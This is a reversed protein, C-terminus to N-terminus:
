VGTFTKACGRIIARPQRCRYNKKAGKARLLKAGEVITHGTDIMDDIIIATKGDVDGILNM